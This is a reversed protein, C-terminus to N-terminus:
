EEEMNNDIKSEEKFQKAERKGSGHYENEENKVEIKIDSKKKVRM